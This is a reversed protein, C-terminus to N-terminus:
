TIPKSTWHLVLSRARNPAFHADTNPSDHNPSYPWRFLAHRSVKWLKQDTGASEESKLSEIVNDTTMQTTPLRIWHPPYVFVQPGSRYTGWYHRRIHLFYNSSHLIQYYYFKIRFRVWNQRVAFRYKSESYAEYVTNKLSLSEKGQITEDYGVM